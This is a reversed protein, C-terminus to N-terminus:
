RHYPVDKDSLTLLRALPNLLNIKTTAPASVRVKQDFLVWVMRADNDRPLLLLLFSPPKSTCTSMLVDVYGHRHCM